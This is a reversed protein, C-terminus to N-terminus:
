HARRVAVPWSPPPQLKPAADLGLDLLDDPHTRERESQLYKEGNRTVVVVRVVKDDLHFFFEDLGQEILAIAAPQSFSWHTHDANVGHLAAIRELPDLSYARTVRSILRRRFPKTM